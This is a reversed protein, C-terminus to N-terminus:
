TESQILKAMKSKIGAREAPTIEQKKYMRKLVSLFTVVGCKTSLRILDHKLEKVIDEIIMETTKKYVEDLVNVGEKSLGSSAEGKLQYLYEVSNTLYRKLAVNGSLRYALIPDVVSLNNIADLYIALLGEDEPQYTNKFLEELISNYYGELEKKESGDSNEPYIETVVKLVIETVISLNVSARNISRYLILLQYLAKNLIKIKEVRRQYIFGIATLAGGILVGTVTDGLEM